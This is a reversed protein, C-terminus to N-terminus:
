HIQAPTGSGAVLCRRGGGRETVRMCIDIGLIRRCRTNCAKETRPVFTSNWRFIYKFIWQVIGTFIWRFLSLGKPFVVSLDVPTPFNSQFEMQFHWQCDVIIESTDIEPTCDKAGVPTQSLLVGKASARAVRDLLLFQLGAGSKTNQFSM